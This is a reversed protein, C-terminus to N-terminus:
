WPASPHPRTPLRRADGVVAGFEIGLRWVRHETVLALAAGALGRSWSRGHVFGNVFSM